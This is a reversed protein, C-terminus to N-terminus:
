EHTNPKMEITSLHETFFKTAHYIPESVLSNKIKEITCLKIDTHKRLNETTKGLVTSAMFKFFDKKLDTKAKRELDTNM